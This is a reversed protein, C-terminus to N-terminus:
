LGTVNTEGGADHRFKHEKNVYYGIADTIHTLALDYKKDIEGSGGEVLRVGEFDLVTKPCSVPDIMMRVSGDTSQLRSNVANVREREGPNKHPVRYTVRQQGFHKALTSKVLEWDSGLVKASGRSGGSADGYVKVPGIHKKGYLQGIKNCVMITNSNRPIYVEDFWATMTEGIIPLKTKPDLATTEQGIAAVGPEVNFDLAIILPANPRYLSKLRAQHLKESFNYYAAGAFTVFSGRYEQDYTLPDLNRKARAIAEPSLIDESVWHFTAWDPPNQLMYLLQERRSLSAIKEMYDLFYAQADKYLQYYHNRGEPVGIFAAAGERGPTNLAPELHEDWVEKKMNGYEDLLLFDWPKGEAREPRDMGLCYVDVGNKLYIVLQSENVGPPRRYKVPLLKKLDNWYISKAQDRTPAAVGLQPNEDAVYWEPHGAANCSALDFCYLARQAFQQKGKIETKGSRRGAPVVQYRARSAWLRAQEPHFGLPTFRRSINLLDSNIITTTDLRM